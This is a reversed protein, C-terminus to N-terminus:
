YQSSCYKLSSEKLCRKDGHLVVDDCVCSLNKDLMGVM